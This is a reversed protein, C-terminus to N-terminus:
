TAGSVAGHNAAHHLMRALVLRLVLTAMYAALIVKPAPLWAVTVADRILDAHAIFLGAVIAFVCEAASLRAALRWRRRAAGYGVLLLLLLNLAGIALKWWLVIGVHYSVWWHWGYPDIVVACILVAV